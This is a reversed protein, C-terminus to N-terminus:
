HPQHNVQLYLLKGEPVIITAHVVPELIERVNGGSGTGVEGPEPFEVPNSVERETGDRLVLRCACM